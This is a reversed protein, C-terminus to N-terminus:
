GSIARGVGASAVLDVSREGGAMRSPRMGTPRRGLLREFLGLGLQIQREAAERHSFHQEPLQIQPNATRASDVHALLPLIPHSYPSFTLEARGRDALERYKPIVQKRM